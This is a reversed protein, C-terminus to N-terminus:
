KNRFWNTFENRADSLKDEWHKVSNKGIIDTVYKVAIFPIGFEKCVIAQAFAEMDVVDGNVSEAETVFSDGTNCTGSNKNSSIWDEFIKEKTLMPTFDIEYEVGPLNVSHFDRDIFRRCVFVDGVSHNLTGATGMNLVLAPEEKCIAETLKMAAKAKGIGTLVYIIQYGHLAIPAFEDKVAYTVLIKKM